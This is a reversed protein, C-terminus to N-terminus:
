ISWFIIQVREKVFGTQECFETRMKSFDYRGWKVDNKAVMQLTSIDKLWSDLLISKADLPSRYSLINLNYYDFTLLPLNRSKVKFTTIEM